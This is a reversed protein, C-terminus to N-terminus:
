VASITLSEFPKEKKQNFIAKRYVLLLLQHGHKRCTIFAAILAVFCFLFGRDMARLSIAGQLGARKQSVGQLCVKSPGPQSQGHTRRLRQRSM